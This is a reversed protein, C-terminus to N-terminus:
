IEELRRAIDEVAYQIEGHIRPLDDRIRQTFWGPAIAQQVWVARNGFVPHRLRGRDMDRLQRNSRVSRIKVNVAKASLRTRVTIPEAAIKAAFGGRRPLIEGAHAHIKPVVPKAASRLKRLLALRLERDGTDQLRAALRRLREQGNDTM